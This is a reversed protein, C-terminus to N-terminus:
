GTLSTAQLNSFSEFEVIKGTEDFTVLIYAVLYTEGATNIRAVEMLARNGLVGLCESETNQYDQQVLEQQSAQQFEKWTMSANEDTGITFLVEEGNSDQLVVTVPSAFLSELDDVSEGKMASTLYPGYKACIDSAYKTYIATM